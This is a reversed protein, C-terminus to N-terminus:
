DRKCLDVGNNNLIECVKEAVDKPMYVVGLTKICSEKDVMYCGGLASLYIYFNSTWGDWIVKSKYDSDIQEALAGICMLEKELQLDANANELTQRYRFYELAASDNGEMKTSVWSSGIFYCEKPTYKFDIKDPKNLEVKLGTLELELAQIRELIKDKDITLNDIGM